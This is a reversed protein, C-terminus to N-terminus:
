RKRTEPAAGFWAPVRDPEEFAFATMVRDRSTMSGVSPMRDEKGRRASGRGPHEVEM